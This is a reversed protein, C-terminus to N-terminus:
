PKNKIENALLEIFQDPSPITGDPAIKRWHKQIEPDPNFFGENIAKCMEDYIIEVSVGEKKAIQKLVKSYKQKM